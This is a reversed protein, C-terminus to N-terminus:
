KAKAVINITCFIRLAVSLCCVAGALGGVLYLRWCAIVNSISLAVSTALSM